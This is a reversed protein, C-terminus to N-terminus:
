IGFFRPIRDHNYSTPTPPPTSFALIAFVRSSRFISVYFRSKICSWAFVRALVFLGHTAIRPM